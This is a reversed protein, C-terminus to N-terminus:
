QHDVQGGPKRSKLLGSHSKKGVFKRDRKPQIRLRGSLADRVNYFFRRAGEFHGGCVHRFVASIIGRPFWRSFRVFKSPETIRKKKGERKGGSFLITTIM